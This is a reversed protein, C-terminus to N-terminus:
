TISYLERTTAWLFAGIMNIRLLKVSPNHFSTSTLRENIPEFSITHFVEKSEIFDVSNTLYKQLLHYKFRSGKTYSVSIRGSHWPSLHLVSGLEHKLSESDVYNVCETKM